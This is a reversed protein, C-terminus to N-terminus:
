QIAPKALTGRIPIQYHGPSSLYKTLILFIFKQGELFEPKPMLELTLNVPASGLPSAVPMDGKLRVYLGKGQLTFSELSVKGGNVRCMGQITEYSADPLPMGSLKIGNLVAGKVWLRLEGRYNGQTEQITARANLDGKVKAETVTQFFPIDELQVDDMSLSFGGSQQPSVDGEITGKGIEGHYIIVVRGLCLASLSIRASAEDLKILSGRADSIELNRAKLGFPFARGFHSAQMTYGQRELGSTIVAQLERAPIFLITLIIFLSLAGVIWACILLPQKLKM